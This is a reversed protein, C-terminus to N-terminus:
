KADEKKQKKDLIMRYIERSDPKPGLITENWRDIASARELKNDLPNFRLSKGSFERLALAADLRRHPDNHDLLELLITLALTEFRGDAISKIESWRKLEGSQISEQLKGRFSNRGALQQQRSSSFYVPKFLVISKGLAERYVGTMVTNTEDEDIKRCFLAYYQSISAYRTKRFVSPIARILNLGEKEQIKEPSVRILLPVLTGNGGQIDDLFCNILQKVESTSLKEEDIGKSVTERFRSHNSSDLALQLLLPNKVQNRFEKNRLLRNLLAMLSIRSLQSTDKRKMLDSITSMAERPTQLARDYVTGFDKIPYSLSKLMRGLEDDTDQSYVSQMNLSCFMLLVFLSRRIM